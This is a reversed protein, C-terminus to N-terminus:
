EGQAFAQMLPESSGAPNMRPASLKAHSQQSIRQLAAGILFRLADTDLTSSLFDTTKQPQTM